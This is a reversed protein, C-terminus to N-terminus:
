RIDENEDVYRLSPQASSAYRLWGIRRSAGPPLRLRHGTPISFLARGPEAAVQWGALADAALLREDGWSAIVAAQLNEDSEGNNVLALDIPNDGTRQIALHTSPRRGSMVAALTPWRWNRLDTAVPLRYWLVERLEAPRRHQWEQVLDALASADASYELTRTDPPWAPQVSDMAVGILRGDSDYGATCRYTPLAVSFPRGLRAAREVWVRAQATDCVEGNEAGHLPVSHVQLIYGDTEALLSEFSPENLWAPLTTIVFRAPQIVHRLEHLWGRYSRLNRQACDYDFQFERVEVGHSHAEALLSRIEAAIARLAPSGLSSPFAFPAVRLAIACPAKAQRLANWDLNARVIRPHLGSWEIEAGLSVVGDLKRDAEAFAATVAPSWHRQWIYGRQPLQGSVTTPSRSCGAAVFALAAVLLTAKM